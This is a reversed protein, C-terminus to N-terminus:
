GTAPRAFARRGQQAAIADTVADAFRQLFDGPQEGDIRRRLAARQPARV